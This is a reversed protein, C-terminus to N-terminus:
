KLLDTVVRHVDGKFKDLLALMKDQPGYGMQKLVALQHQYLFRRPAAGPSFYDPHDYARSAPNASFHDGSDYVRSGSYPTFM